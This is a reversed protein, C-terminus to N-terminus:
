FCVFFNMQIKCYKHHNNLRWVPSSVCIRPLPLLAIRSLVNNRPFSVFFVKMPPYRPAWKMYHWTRRCRQKRQVQTWSLIKSIRFQGREEPFPNDYEAHNRESGDCRDVGLLAEGVWLHPHPCYFHPEPSTKKKWKNMQIPVHSVLPLSPAVESGLGSSKQITSTRM